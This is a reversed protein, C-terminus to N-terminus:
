QLEDKKWTGYDKYGSGWTLTGLGDRFGKKWEGEYKDGNPWIM